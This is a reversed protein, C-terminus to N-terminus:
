EPGASVVSDPINSRVESPAVGAAARAARVDAPPEWQPVGDLTPPVVAEVSIERPEPVRWGPASARYAVLEAALGRVRFGSEATRIWGELRIPVRAERTVYVVGEGAGHPRGDLRTSPRLAWTEVAGLSRSEVRPGAAVDLRFEFLRRDAWTPVGFSRGPALPLARLLYFLDSTDRAFPGLDLVLERRQGKHRKDLRAHVFRTPWDYRVEEDYLKGPRRELARTRLTVFRDLDIWAESRDRVEHILSFVPNTEATAVVHAIRVGGQEVFRAVEIAARGAPVGFWSVEYELREGVPFPFQAPRAELDAPALVRLAPDDLLWPERAQARAASCAVAVLLAVWAQRRV